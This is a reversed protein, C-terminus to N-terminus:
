PRKSIFDNIQKRLETIDNEMRTFQSQPTTIAAVDRRVEDLRVSLTFIQSAETKANAEVENRPVIGRELRDIDSQTRGKFEIHEEKTLARSELGRLDERVESIRRDTAANQQTVIWGFAGMVLAAASLIITMNGRSIYGNPQTATM